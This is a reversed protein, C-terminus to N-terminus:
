SWIRNRSRSSKERKGWSWCFWREEGALCRRARYRCRRVLSARVSPRERSACESAIISVSHLGNTGWDSRGRSQGPEAYGPFRADGRESRAEISEAVARFRRVPIRKWLVIGQADDPNAAGNGCAGHSNRREPVDGCNEHQRQRDPAGNVPSRLMGDRRFEM